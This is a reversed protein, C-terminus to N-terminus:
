DKLERYFNSECPPREQNGVRTAAGGVSDCYEKEKM